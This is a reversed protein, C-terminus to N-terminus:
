QGPNTSQFQTTETTTEELDRELILRNRCARLDIAPDIHDASTNKNSQFAQYSSVQTLMRLPSYRPLVCNVNRLADALNKLFASKESNQEGLIGVECDHCVYRPSHINLIVAYVKCHSSFSPHAMLKQIIQQSTAPNELYNLLAQEGHHFDNWFSPNEERAEHKEQIEDATKPAYTDYKDFIEPPASASRHIINEHYDNDEEAIHFGPIFNLPMTITIREPHENRQYPKASVVFTLSATVPNGDIDKPEGDAKTEPNFLRQRSFSNQLLLEAHHADSNIALSRRPGSSGYSVFFSKVWQIGIEAKLRSQIRAQELIPIIKELSLAQAKALAADISDESLRPEILLRRIMKEDNRSVAWDLATWDMNDKANLNCDPSALIIKLLRYYGHAAALHLATLNTRSLSSNAVELNVRTGRRILLWAMDMATDLANDNDNLRSQRLNLILQYLATLGAQNITNIKIKMQLLFEICPLQNANTAIHLLTNGNSDKLLLLKPNAQLLSKLQFLNGNSVLDFVRLADDPNVSSTTTTSTARHDSTSATRHDTTSANAVDDDVEVKPKKAPPLMTVATASTTSSTAVTTTPPLEQTDNDDDDNQVKPKEDAKRKKSSIATASTASSTQTTSTQAPATATLLNVIAEYKRKEEADTASALKQRALSLATHNQNNWLAKNFGEQLLYEVIKPQAHIVALHLLYEGESTVVYISATKESIIIKTEELNGSTVAHVLADRNQQTTDSYKKILTITPKTYDVKVRRSYTGYRRADAQSFPKNEYEDSSIGMSVLRTNRIGKRKKPNLTELFVKVSTECIKTESLDLTTLTSNKLLNNALTTLAEGPIPNNSLYLDVLRINRELSQALYVIGAGAIKNKSLNLFALSTNEQKLLEGLAKAGENGMSNNELRLLVLGPSTRLADSLHKAGDDSINNGGLVLTQLVSNGKFFEALHKIDNDNFQCNLLILTRIKNKVPMLSDCLFKGSGTLVQNELTVTTNTESQKWKHLVHNRALLEKIEKTTENHKNLQSREETTYNDRGNYYSEYEKSPPRTLSFELLSCNENDYLAWRVIKILQNIGGITLMNNGIDLVQITKNTTFIKKIAPIAKDTLGNNTLVVGHITQNSALFAALSNMANDEITCNTITLRKINSLGNLQKIIKEMDMQSLYLGDLKIDDGVINQEISKLFKNRNVVKEATINSDYSSGRSYKNHKVACLSGSRYLARNIEQWESDEIKRGVSLTELEPKTNILECILETTATQLSIQRITQNNKLFEILLNMATDDITCNIIRMSEIDDRGNLKQLINEMDNQKLHLGDLKINKDSLNADISKLFKNRAMIKKTEDETYHVDHTRAYSNVCSIDCLSSSEYLTARIKGWGEENMKDANLRIDTLEPNTKILECLLKIHKENMALENPFTVTKLTSNNRLKTATNEFNQENLDKATLTVKESTALSNASASNTAAVQTGSSQGSTSGQGAKMM